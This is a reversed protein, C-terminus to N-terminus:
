HQPDGSARCATNHQRAPLPTVRLQAKPCALLSILSLPATRGGFTAHANHCPLTRTTARTTARRREAITSRDQQKSPAARRLPAASTTEAAAAQRTKARDLANGGSPARATNDPAARDLAAVGLPSTATNDPAGSHQKPSVVRRLPATDTTEAAAAHCTKDISRLALSPAAHGQAAGSRPWVM